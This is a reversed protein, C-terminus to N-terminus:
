PMLAPYFVDVDVDGNIGDIRAFGQQWLFYKGEYTTQDTYNALWVSGTVEENWLLELYYKSNYLAAKYGRAEAEQRFATFMDGFDKLSMKYDEINNYDEWDFFVPFDLTEGNLLSYLYAANRHVAEAGNEESYWYVGVKLGAAKANRINNAYCRDVFNEGIHGGIRMIAFECGAAAVKQFDITEQWRSVDIGVMTGDTKYLRIFEEFSKPPDKPEEVPPPAPETVSVTMNATSYKGTNDVITLKLPYEGLTATDVVGEVYLQVDPDLDDIYSVYKHVNFADGQDLTVNHVFYLFFPAMTDQPEEAPGPVATTEPAATTTPTPLTTMEATPAAASLAPDSVAPATLDATSRYRLCGTLPLVCCLLAAATRICQFTRKMRTKGGKAGNKM